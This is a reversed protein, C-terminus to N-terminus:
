HSELDNIKSVGSLKYKEVLYKLFNYYCQGTKHFDWKEGILSAVINIQGMKFNNKQQYDLGTEHKEIRIYDNILTTIIEKMDTSNIQITPLEKEHESM